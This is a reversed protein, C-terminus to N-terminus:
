RTRVLEPVEEGGEGCEAARSGVHCLEALCRSLVEVPPRWGLRTYTVAVDQPDFLLLYGCGAKLEGGADRPVVEGSEGEEWVPVYRVVSGGCRSDLRPLDPGDLSSGADALAGRSGLQVSSYVAGYRGVAAGFFDVVPVTGDRGFHFAGMGVPEVSVGQFSGFWGDPSSLMSYVTPWSGLVALAKEVFEPRVVELYCYGEKFGTGDDNVVARVPSVVSVLSRSSAVVGAGEGAASAASGVDGTGSAALAGVPVPRGEMRSGGVVDTLAPARRLYVDSLDMVLDGRSGLQGPGCQKGSVSLVSALCQRLTVLGAYGVHYRGPGVRVVKACTLDTVFWAAPSELLAEFSPWDGLREQAVAVHPSSIVALYCRADEGCEVAGERAYTVVSSALSRERRAAAKKARQRARRRARGSSASSGVSVESKPEPEPAGDEPESVLGLWKGYLGFYLKAVDAPVGGACGVFPSAPPALALADRVAGSLASM